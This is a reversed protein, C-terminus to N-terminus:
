QITDLREEWDERLAEMQKWCSRGLEEFSQRAEETLDSAGPKRGKRWRVDQGVVGGYGWGEVETRTVRERGRLDTASGWKGPGDTEELRDLVSQPTMILWVPACAGCYATLTHWPSGLWRAVYLVITMAYSLLFHLPVISTACVGPHSVYMKVKPPTGDSPSPVSLYRSTWPSTSSLSSSLVLLDTLRKSSEYTSPTRLAQIDSISFCSEHAEITSIWIIRGTHESSGDHAALLPVLDHSLVYHGFVNACFVEGLPPEENWQNWVGNKESRVQPRTLVGVQSRKYTPWTAAYVPHRLFSWIALPWNLGIFGGTGANLVVADLKPITKLLRSSLERVSRLSTLDLLESQLSVRDPPVSSRQLHRELRSTTVQAKQQSRTTSILHLRQTKPRTSIFEDILRMCIAFGLGSNVGTVLMYCTEVDM